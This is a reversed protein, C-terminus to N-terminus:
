WVMGAGVAVGADGRTSASANVKFLYRGSESITSVGLAIAQEGRFSSLAVGAASQDPQYAQPLSAMAMAAAVGASARRDVEGVRSDTYNRSWDAVGDLGDYLQGVNAADTRETGAAVNTVQRQNSASGVSVTNARDAVAGQGLAVSNAETAKAGKGVAVSGVGSAVANAGVATANLGSAQSSGGVATTSTTSATAAQGVAVSTGNSGVTVPIVTPAISAASPSGNETGNGGSSANAGSSGRDAPANATQQITTVSSQLNSIANSNDQVKQNTAYLQSGNVADTSSASLRGAAVNQIQREAGVAGVSFAGAPTNGAFAYTSGGLTTSGVATVAATRAGSGIAVDQANGAVADSGIAVSDTGSAASDAGTSNVHMYKVGEGGQIGKVADDLASVATNTAYLQSGNVADTSSASVRGAAVNTLTRENGVSGVSVTSTPATGAYTYSRGNLVVGSTAVADATESGSGLAVDDRNMAVAGAGMALANTSKASAASGLAVSAVGDAQAGAGHAVSNGGSAAAANGLAVANTGNAHANAGQAVSYGGSASANAGQAVANMGSATAGLGQAVASGGSANAGSGLALANSGTAKATGGLAVAGANSALASQGMAIAAAGSASANAGQAISNGGTASAGNGLALDNVIKEANKPNADTNAKGAVAGSGLALSGNGYATAAGGIATSEAGSASGDDLTSNTHVYKVGKGDQLNNITTKIQTVQDGVSSVETNTAYLQSGNVADTSTASVRGAAVNTVTRENGASGVSVTSKPATGSYTYATGNITAGTTAVAAATSSGAGLAVAGAQSAAAGSGLALSGGGTAKAAKGLAVDDVITSSNSPKDATNAQGAVAGNGLAMANDGYATAIPGMATSDIGSAVSDEGTSNTNIYKVGKGEQLKELTKNIETVKSGVSGVETNTAYLQSGNVADTSSASVRGAAVNTVSRENGASGMSVTSKPATGAYTYATGNITAGTTAVAASTSSGAGLAVAGAQGASAGSGLALSSGGTAKAANGLAVDDVITSSNSPKDATNAQGAVAGNGLAMANDGYATATPGMATSDTGSASGDDLTSNTHVYKIGKGDQLNTVTTNIKTVQDGMKTVKDGVSTVETNIASLQSGNVADTSTSSVRGAAVNTVTRENGLSGVSVTSAPATGAYTYRTGNITANTTAVAAATTSNAGLAVASTQGASAGSGLALSDKGSAKADNGTAAAYDGSAQAGKGVAVSSNGSASATSGLATSSAGAATAGPGFVSSAYGGANAGSGVATALEASAAAGAGQAIASKGAAAAANGIAISSEGGANTSGVGIAIANSGSAAAGSDDASTVSFYPLTVDGTLTLNNITANNLYAATNAYLKGGITMNVVNSDSDNAWTLIRNQQTAADSYGCVVNRGYFKLSDRIETPSNDHSEGNGGWSLGTDKRNKWGTVQCYPTNSDSQLGFTQFIGGNFGRDSYADAHAENGASVICILMALSLGAFHPHSVRMQSGGKGKGKAKALESVIVWAGMATNWVIKFARNM